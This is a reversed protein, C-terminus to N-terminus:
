SAPLFGLQSVPPIGKTFSLCWSESHTHDLHGVGLVTVMTPWFKATAM